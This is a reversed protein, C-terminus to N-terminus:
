GKFAQAFKNTIKVLMLSLNTTNARDNRVGWQIGDIIENAEAITFEVPKTEPETAEIKEKSM